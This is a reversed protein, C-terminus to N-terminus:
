GSRLSPDPFRYNMYEPKESLSSLLEGESRESHCFQIVVGVGKGMFDGVIFIMIKPALPKM